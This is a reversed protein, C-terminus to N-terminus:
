TNKLCVQCRSVRDRVNGAKLTQKQPKQFQQNKREMVSSLHRHELTRWAPVPVRYPNDEVMQEQELTSLM